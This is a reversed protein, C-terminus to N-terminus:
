GVLWKKLFHIQNGGKSHYNRRMYETIAKDSRIINTVFDQRMSALMDRINSDIDIPVPLLNRGNAIVTENKRKDKKLPCKHKWLDKWSFYGYCSLCPLYKYPDVTINKPLRYM